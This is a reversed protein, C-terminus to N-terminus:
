INWPKKINDKKNNFRFLKPIRLIIDNASIYNSFIMQQTIDERKIVKAM